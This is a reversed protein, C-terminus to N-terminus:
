SATTSSYATLLSTTADKWRSTMFLSAMRAYQAFWPWPTQASKHHTGHCTTCLTMLNDARNNAPNEDIHHIVLNSRAVRQGNWTVWRPKNPAHCVVCRDMDRELILPRMQDFWKAYSTGTKYHSNGRGRMRASHAANACEKSCFQRRISGSEFVAGCTRCKVKIKPPRAAKRCEPSCYKTNRRPPKVRCQACAKRKQYSPTNHVSVRAGCERSCYIHAYGKRQAKEVEFRQRQFSVGCAECELTILDSRAKFYCAQCMKSHRDMTAGCLPCIKRSRPLASFDHVTLSYRRRGTDKAKSTSVTIPPQGSASARKRRSTLSAGM